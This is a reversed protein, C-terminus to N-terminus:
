GPDDVSPVFVWETLELLNKKDKCINGLQEVYSKFRDFSDNESAHETFIRGTVVVIRPRMAELGECLKEL